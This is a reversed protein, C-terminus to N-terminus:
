LAVLICVCAHTHASTLYIKCVVQMETNEFIFMFLIWDVEYTPRGNSRLQGSSYTLWQKAIYVQLVLRSKKLTFQYITRRKVTLM